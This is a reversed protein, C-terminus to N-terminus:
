TICMIGTYESGGDEAHEELLPQTNENINADLDSIFSIYMMLM